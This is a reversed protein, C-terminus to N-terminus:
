RKRRLLLGCSLGLLALASPEPIPVVVLNSPLVPTTALLSHNDNEFIWTNGTKQTLVIKNFTQSGTTIFHLYAYPETPNLNTAGPQDYYDRTKYVNGNIAVVTGTSTNPLMNILSATSFTLLLTNGDYIQIQNFADGATFYFGFYQASTGPDLTLTVSNGAAIGLYNGEGNGGYKDNALINGGATSTYTAGLATSHYNNVANAGTAKSNFTETRTDTGAILSDAASEIDNPSVYVSVQASASAAALASLTLFLSRFKM